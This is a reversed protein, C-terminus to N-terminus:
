WNLRKKYECECSGSNANDLVTVISSKLGDAEVVGLDVRKGGKFFGHLLQLPDGTSRPSRGGQLEGIIVENTVATPRLSINSHHHDRVAPVVGTIVVFQKLVEAARIFVNIDISNSDPVHKFLRFLIFAQFGDGAVIRSPHHARPPERIQHCLIEDILKLRHEAWTLGTLKFTKSFM